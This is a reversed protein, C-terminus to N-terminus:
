KKYKAELKELEIAFDPLIDPMALWAYDHYVRDKIINNTSDALIFVYKNKAGYPIYPSYQYSFIAKPKVENVASQLQEKFDKSSEVNFPKGM